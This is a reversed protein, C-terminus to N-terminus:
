NYCVRVIGDQEPFSRRCAYIIRQMNRRQVEMVGVFRERRGSCVVVRSEICEFMKIEAGLTSNRSLLALFSAALSLANFAMIAARAIADGLVFTIKQVKVCLVANSGDMSLNTRDVITLKAVDVLLCAQQEIIPPELVSTTSFPIGGRKRRVPM